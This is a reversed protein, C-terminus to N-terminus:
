LGMDEIVVQFEHGELEYREIIETLEWESLLKPYQIVFKDTDLNYAVMGKKIPGGPMVVLNGYFVGDEVETSCAHLEEELFEFYGVQYPYRGKEWSQALREDTWYVDEMLLDRFKDVDHVYEELKGSADLEEIRVYLRPSLHKVMFAKEYKNSVDWLMYFYDLVDADMDLYKGFTKILFICMRSDKNREPNGKTEFYDLLVNLTFTGNEVEESSWGEMNVGRSMFSGGFTSNLSKILSWMYATAIQYYPPIIIGNISIRYPKFFGPQSVNPTVYIDTGDIKYTEFPNKEKIEHIEEGRKYALCRETEIILIDEMMGLCKNHVLREQYTDTHYEVYVKDLAVSGLYIIREERNYGYIKSYNKSIEVLYENEELENWRVVEDEIEEINLYGFSNREEDCKKLYFLKNNILCVNPILKFIEDCMSLVWVWELELSNIEEIMEEFNSFCIRKELAKTIIKLIEELVREFNIIGFKYGDLIERIKEVRNASILGEFYLGIISSKLYLMDGNKARHENPLENSLGYALIDGIKM